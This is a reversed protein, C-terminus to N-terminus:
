RTTEEDDRPNMEGCLTFISTDSGAFHYIADGASLPWAVLPVLSESLIARWLLRARLPHHISIYCENAEDPENAEM